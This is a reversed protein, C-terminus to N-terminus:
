LLHEDEDRNRERRAHDGRESGADERDERNHQRAAAGPCLPSRVRNCGADDRGEGGKKQGSCPEPPEDADVLLMLDPDASSKEQQERQDQDDRLDALQGLPREEEQRAPTGTIEAATEDQTCGEPEYEHRAASRHECRERRVGCRIADAPPDDRDRDRVREARRQRHERDGAAAVSEGVTKAALCPRDADTTSDQHSDRGDHDVVAPGFIQLRSDRAVRLPRLVQDLTVRVGFALERPEPAISGPRHEDRSASPEDADRELVVPWRRGRAADRGPDVAGGEAQLFQV